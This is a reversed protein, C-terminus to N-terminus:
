ATGGSYALYPISLATKRASEMNSLLTAATDWEGELFNRRREEPIDIPCVLTGARAQMKKLDIEIETTADKECLSALKEADEPSVAVAVLGVAACNGSFIDAFSVGVFAKIGARLLAQPAHERSSGCGFNREVVMVSAGKYRAENMTHEKLSGDAEHRADYFAYEGLGDFSVCRMFRAPIIRDTDIDNGRVPIGRGKFSSIVSDKPM